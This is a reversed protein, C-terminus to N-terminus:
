RLFGRKQLRARTAEDPEGSEALGEIKQFTKLAEATQSGMVGDVTLEHFGFNVLAQQVAHVKEDGISGTALADDTDTGGHFGPAPKPLPPASAVTEATAPDILSRRMAADIQGTQPLGLIEQYRRIAASTRPGKLGDIQGDYLDLDTLVSQIRALDPDGVARDGAIARAKEQVSGAAVTGSAGNQSAALSPRKLTQFFPSPHRVAQELSNGTVVIGLAGVAVGMTVLLPNAMVFAAGYRGARSLIRM